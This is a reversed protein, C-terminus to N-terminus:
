ASLIFFSKILLTCAMFFLTLAANAKHFSLKVALGFTTPEFGPVYLLTKSNM